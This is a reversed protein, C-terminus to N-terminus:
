KQGKLQSAIAQINQVSSLAMADSAKLHSYPLLLEPHQDLLLQFEWDTTCDSQLDELSVGEEM